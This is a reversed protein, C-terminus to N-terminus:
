VTDDWEYFKKLYFNCECRITLAINIFGSQNRSCAFLFGKIVLWTFIDSFLSLVLYIYSFSSEVFSYKRDQCGEFM